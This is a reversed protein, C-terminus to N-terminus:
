KDLDISLMASVRPVVKLGTRQTFVSQKGDIISETTFWQRLSVSPPSSYACKSVPQATWGASGCVSTHMSDNKGWSGRKGANHREFLLSVWVCVCVSQQTCLAALTSKVIQRAARLNRSSVGAVVLLLLPFRGAWTWRRILPTPQFSQSHKYVDHFCFSM